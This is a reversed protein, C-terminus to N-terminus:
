DSYLDSNKYVEIIKDLVEAKFKFEKAEKLLKEHKEQLQDVENELQIRRGLLKDM